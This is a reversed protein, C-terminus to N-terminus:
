QWPVKALQIPKTQRSVDEGSRRHPFCSDQRRRARHLVRKDSNVPRKSLDIERTFFDNFSAFDELSRSCEQLNVRMAEAFPKIRRRSWRREHLWGYFRSVIKQRFLLDTTLRGVRTNYSWNLFGQAYIPEEMMTKTQRDYYHIKLADKM